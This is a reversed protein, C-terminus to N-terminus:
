PQNLKHLLRAYGLRHASVKGLVIQRWHLKKAFNRNFHFLLRLRIALHLDSVPNHDLDEIAFLKDIHDSGALPASERANHLPVVKAATGFRM